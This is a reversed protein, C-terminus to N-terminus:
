PMALRGFIAPVSASKLIAIRGLFRRTSGAVGYPLSCSRISVALAGM